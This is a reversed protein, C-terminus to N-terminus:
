PCVAPPTGQRFMYRVLLVVDNIDISNNGDFDAEVMYVPSPGHRFMYNALWVLDNITIDEEPDGDVNGRIGFCVGVSFCHPGDWTPSVQNNGAWLWGGTPPFFSTDLCITLGAMTQPLRGITITYGIDDFGPELGVGTSSVFGTFAITDSLQGDRSRAYVHLAGDYIQPDQGHWVLPTRGAPDVFRGYWVTDVPCPPKACDATDLSYGPVWRAGDPSYLRFANVSGIYTESSNNTLRLYFTIPQEVRMKDDTVGDVHDLTVSTEQANVTATLAAVCVVYAIKRM